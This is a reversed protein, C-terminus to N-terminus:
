QQAGAPSVTSNHADVSSLARLAVIAADIVNSDWGERRDTRNNVVTCVAGSRLRFIRALTFLVAAEMEFNLVSLQKMEDVIGAGHGHRWGDVAARGQGAFFSSTTAGTGVHVRHGLATAANVLGATLQWSAVAPFEPRAYNISTGDLRVAADNVILSGPEIGPQLAGTTGVRVITDVGLGALEIICRELGAAGIGHSLAIIPKDQFYGTAGKYGRRFTLVRGDTLQEAIGDIRGPDGTVIANSSSFGDDALASFFHQMPDAPERVISTTM